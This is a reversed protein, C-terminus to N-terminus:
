LEFHHLDPHSFTAGWLFGAEHLEKVLEWPLSFFGAQWKKVFDRGITSLRADSKIAAELLDALKATAEAKTKDSARPVAASAMAKTEIEKKAKNLRTVFEDNVAKIGDYLDKPASKWKAQRTSHDLSKDTYLLISNWTATQIHPNKASEIDIATGIGHESITGLRYGDMKMPRPNFGGHQFSKGYDLQVQKLATKLKESMQSKILKPIDASDGLTNRYAKRVWAYFVDQAKRWDNVQNRVKTQPEVLRRLKEKDADLEKRSEQLFNEYAKQGGFFKNRDAVYSETRYKKEGKERYSYSTKGSKNKVPGYVQVLLKLENEDATALRKAFEAVSSALDGGVGMTGPTLHPGASCRDMDLGLPGRYLFTHKGYGWLGPSRSTGM